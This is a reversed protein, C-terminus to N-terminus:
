SFYTYFINWDLFVYFHAAMVIVSLISILDKLDSKSTIYSYDQCWDGDWDILKVVINDPDSYNIM